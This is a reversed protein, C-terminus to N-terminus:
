GNVIGPIDLLKGLDPIVAVAEGAEEGNRAVLVADIGCSTAGAIDSVTDNGVHVVRERSEAMDAVRLAEEFIGTAPKEVGLEASAIVADFYGLWGIDELTQALTIDWNSVAYVKKGADKLGALVTESEPYPNFSIRRDAIEELLGEPAEVELERAVRLANERKFRALEDPTRYNINEDIHRRVSKWVPGQAREVTLGGNGSYPALEAVYGEVDLDVWLLTGDIDLFVAEYPQDSPPADRM